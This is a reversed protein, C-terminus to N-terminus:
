EGQELSRLREEHDGTMKELLDIAKSVKGGWYFLIASNALIMAVLGVIAILLSSTSDM